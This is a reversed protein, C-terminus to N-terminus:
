HIAIGQPFDLGTKTGEIRKIPRVNGNSGAGYVTIHSNRAFGSAVYINGTNDLALGLPGGLKARPGKIERLPAVNGSAGPAYTTVSVGNFNAIYTNLNSDLAIQTPLDLKTLAGKIVRTPAVNGTSGAAYFTLWAQQYGNGLLVNTVGVNGSPDLVLCNPHGLATNPGAIDRLPAVDGKSRPGYVTISGNRFPGGTINSVYLNGTTPDIVIGSPEALATNPGRITRIPKVNGTAGGPYVTVSAPAINVVYVNGDRDVAVDHPHTLGTRPGGIDQIPKMNGTAGFAYVTVSANSVNTVYLCPCQARHTGITPRQLATGVPPQLGACGGLLAAAALSLAARM